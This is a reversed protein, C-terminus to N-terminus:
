DSSNRNSVIREYKERKELYYMEIGVDGTPEKKYISYGLKKYLHINKDSKSGTFLEFRAPKFRCEIDKMLATGIGRGQMEPLVALREVYCTGDKEHARVSGVIRGNDVAKLFVRDKFQERIEGMAQRLPAIDYNNYLAAESRYATKQLDLIESSDEITARMIEM